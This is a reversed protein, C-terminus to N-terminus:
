LENLMLLLIAIDEQEVIAARQRAEEAEKLASMAKRGQAKGANIAALQADNKVKKSALEDIKEALRAVEDSKTAFLIDQTLRQYEESAPIGIDSKRHIVQQQYRTHWPALFGEDGGLIKARDVMLHEAPTADVLGSYSILREGATAGSSGIALLMTAATVGALGSILQLRERATTM